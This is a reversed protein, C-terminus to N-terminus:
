AAAFADEPLPSSLGTAREYAALLHPVQHQWALREDVDALGAAAM